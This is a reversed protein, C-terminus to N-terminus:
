LQKRCLEAYHGPTNVLEEHTGNQVISGEDMVLIYDANKASSVRHCVVVTTSQFPMSKLNGLIIEETKTDVASFSDDFLLIEPKDAIARALAVRKQMGGSLDAPFLDATEISLGVQPLLEEARARAAARTIGRAMLRFGINEWVSLSDFLANQQFLMGIRDDLTEARMDPSTVDAGDIRITGQDPAYLGVLCKLLVTKGAATPGILALSRGPELTLSINQLVHRGGFSKGLTEIQIRSM